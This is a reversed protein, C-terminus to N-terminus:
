QSNIDLKLVILVNVWDSSAKKRARWRVTSYTGGRTRLLHVISPKVCRTVRAYDSILTRSSTFSLIEYKFLLRCYPYQSLLAPHWLPPIIAFAGQEVAEGGVCLLSTACCCISRALARRTACRQRRWRQGGGGREEGVCVISWRLVWGSRRSACCPM